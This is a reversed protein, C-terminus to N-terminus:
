ISEIVKDVSIKQMYTNDRKEPEGAKFDHATIISVRGGRPAYTKDNSPGYLGVSRTGMAAAMHLLGSDNGVFLKAREMLAIATLLDTRGSLDIMHKEPLAQVLPQISQRQAESALVAFVTDHKCLRKVLEAFREIPWDKAASNTKPALLVLPADPDPVLMKAKTRSEDNTWLRTPPPPSIAFLAALQHSKALSKDPSHFIKRARTPILYSILSGRLDVVLDWQTQRTANWLTLWHQNYPLKHIPLLRELRPFAVFLPASATGAAITFKAEPHEDMLWGLIGTSMVADGISGSTIFLIREM